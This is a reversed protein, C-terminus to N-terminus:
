RSLFSKLLNSRARVENCQLKCFDEFRKWITGLNIEEKSLEWSIYQDMRFDGTWAIVKKCKQNELFAAPEYELINQM